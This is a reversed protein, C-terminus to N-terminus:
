SCTSGAREASCEVATGVSASDTVDLQLIEISLRDKQADALVYRASEFRRMSAFVRHVLRAFELASLKGIGSSSGTVVVAAM